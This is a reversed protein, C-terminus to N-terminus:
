NKRKKILILELVRYTSDLGGTWLINIYQM